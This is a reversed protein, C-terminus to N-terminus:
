GRRPNDYQLLRNTTDASQACDNTFGAPTNGATDAAQLVKTTPQLPLLAAPAPMVPVSAM